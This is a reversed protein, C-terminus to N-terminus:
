RSLCRPNCVGHRLESKYDQTFRQCVLRYPGMTMSQGNNMEQERSRNFAGGAIGIFIVVVGFHVLYGGYRRTNRRTLQVM